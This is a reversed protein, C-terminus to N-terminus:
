AALVLGSVSPSGSSSRVRKHCCDPKGREAAWRRAYAAALEGAPYARHDALTTLLRYQQRRTSGDDGELALAFEIVRATM